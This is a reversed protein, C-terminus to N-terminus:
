FEDRHRKWQWHRFRRLLLTTILLWGKSHRGTDAVRRVPSNKM